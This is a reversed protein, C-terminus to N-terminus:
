SRKKGTKAKSPDKSNTSQLSDAETDEQAEKHVSERVTEDIAQYISKFSEGFGAPSIRGVEIFKVTIEKSARLVQDEISGKKM